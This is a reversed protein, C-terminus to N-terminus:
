PTDATVQARLEGSPQVPTHLNLYWLGAMLDAAQSETLIASGTVPSTVDGAIPLVIGANRTADAPGHFHMAFPPAYLGSYTITWTLTHTALDFTAVVSGRGPSQVPPVENTGKLDGKFQVPQSGVELWVAIVLALAAV